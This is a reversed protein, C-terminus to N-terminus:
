GVFKGWVELTLLTREYEDCPCCGTPAMNWCPCRGRPMSRDARHTEEPYAACVAHRAEQTERLFRMMHEMRRADDGEKGHKAFLLGAFQRLAADDYRPFAPPASPSTDADPLRRTQHNPPAVWQRWAEKVTYATRGTASTYRWKVRGGSQVVRKRTWGPPPKRLVRKQFVACRFASVM